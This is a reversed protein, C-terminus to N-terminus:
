VAPLLGSPARSRTHGAADPDRLRPVGRRALARLHEHIAAAPGVSGVPRVAYRVCRAVAALLGAGLVGAALAALLVSPEASVGLLLLVGFLPVAASRVRWM